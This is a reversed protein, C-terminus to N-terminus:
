PKPYAYGSQFVEDNYLTLNFNQCGLSFDSLYRGVSCSSDGCWDMSPENNFRFSPRCSGFYMPDNGYREFSGPGYCRHDLLNESYGGQCNPLSYITMVTARGDSLTVCLVTLIFVNLFITSFAKM